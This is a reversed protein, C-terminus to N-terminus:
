ADFSRELEALSQALLGLLPCAPHRSRIVGYVTRYNAFKKNLGASFSKAFGKGGRKLGQTLSRVNDIKDACAVALAGKSARKLVGLYGKKRKEWPITKDKETVELVIATVRRGVAKEMEERECGTDELVDHLLGAAVVEDKLGAHKLLKAVAVPHSM